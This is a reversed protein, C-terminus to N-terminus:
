YKRMSEPIWWEHLNIFTDTVGLKVGKIRNNIGNIRKPEFLFSYPQDNHIIVQAKEWLPKQKLFDELSRAQDILEDLQPNAYSVVNNGRDPIASSHFISKLEVKTGVRWNGVYADFNHNLNRDVFVKFELPRPHVRIGSRKLYDQVKILIDERIKNGSNTTLEFEFNEGNNDIWGDGDTDKWGKEELIRQSTEPDYPFPEINKNHAWFMSIIPSTCIKAYGYWLSQVIEQRDIAMTLARRIDPDKFLDKEGNWGIYTYNPVSTIILSINQNEKVKQADKPPIAGMFDINRSLLQMFLSTHDPIIQFIVRDLYPQDKLFYNENRVLEVFQQPEYRGLKFPGNTVLNDQFNYTRWDTLPIKEYAHKPLIIGDNIDMLQYPYVKSFRFRIKHDDLAEADTIYEKYSRGTWAIEPSIQVEFTFQVDHATVPIGDSWLVDKRLTFIVEKRDASFDWSEALLPKFTPPHEEFDAGEEMLKLYLRRLVQVSSITSATYENFSDIDSISGLVVTGGKQPTTGSVADKDSENDQRCAASFIAILVALLIIFFKIKKMKIMGRM